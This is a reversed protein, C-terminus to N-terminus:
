LRRGASRGGRGMPQSDPRLLEAMLVRVGRKLAAVMSRSIGIISLECPIGGRRDNDFIHACMDDPRNKGTHFAPGTKGTDEFATEVIRAVQRRVKDVFQHFAPLPLAIPRRERPM